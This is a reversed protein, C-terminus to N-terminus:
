SGGIYRQTINEVRRKGPPNGDDPHQEAERNEASQDIDATLVLVDGNSQEVAEDGASHSFKLDDSDINNANTREAEDGKAQGRQAKLM